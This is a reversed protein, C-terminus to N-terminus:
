LFLVPEGKLGPYPFNKNRKAFAEAADAAEEPTDWAGIMLYHKGDANVALYSDYGSERLRACQGEANTSMTYLGVAVRYRGQPVGEGEAEVKVRDRTYAVDRGNIKMTLPGDADQLVSGAPLLDDLENNAKERKAVAADYANRYNKETPKCGGSLMLAVSALAVASRILISSKRKM